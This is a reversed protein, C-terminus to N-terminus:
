ADCGGLIERARLAQRVSLAEVKALMRGVDRLESPFLEKVAHYVLDEQLRNVEKETLGSEALERERRRVPSESLAEGSAGLADTDLALDAVEQKAVILEIMRADLSGDVGVHLVHVSKKQGFRHSRDEAQDVDKPTWSEEAFLVKSSAHLTLGVGAATIGGVFVKIKENEQFQTVARDKEDDNLGGYYVVSGHKTLASHIPLIVDLHHGFIILKEGDSLAEEALELVHPVKAIAFAKRMESMKEFPIKEGKEILADPTTGLEKWKARELRLITGFGEAPVKIIQRVKPPLETLVDRKLRRVMVTTRLAEQLEELNSSGQFQYHKKCRLPFVACLEPNFKHTVCIKQGGCYKKGFQFFGAGEGPGVKVLQGDRRVQGPGDWDEPALISLLPFLEQVDNPIPTGTLILVRDSKKAIARGAQTRKSKDSKMLHGEDFIVLDWRMGVTLDPFDELLKGLSNYSVIQIRVEPKFLDLVNAAESTMGNAYAVHISKPRTCWRDFEIRWNIRLSAPCVVLVDKVEQMANVIGISQPTKGLGMQDGILVGRKGSRYRSLAFAMGGRQFPMFARGKPCPVDIDADTARSPALKARLAEGEPSCLAHAVGPEGQVWWVRDGQKVPNGCTKCTGDYKSSLLM